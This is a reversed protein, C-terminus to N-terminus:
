FSFTLNNNWKVDQLHTPLMLKSKIKSFYSNIPCSGGEDSPRVKGSGESGSALSAVSIGFGIAVSGSTADQKFPIAAARKVRVKGTTEEERCAILNERAANMGASTDVDPSTMSQLIDMMNYEANDDFGFQEQLFESLDPSESGTSRKSRKTNKKWDEYDLELAKKVAEM